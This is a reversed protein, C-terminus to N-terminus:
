VCRTWVIHFDRGMSSASDRGSIGLAYPTTWRSSRRAVRLVTRYAAVSRRLGLRRHNTAAARAVFVSCRTQSRTPRDNSQACGVSVLVWACRHDGAALARAGWSAMLTRRSEGHRFDGQGVALIDARTQTGSAVERGYAITLLGETAAVIVESSLARGEVTPMDSGVDDVYRAVGDNARAKRARPM